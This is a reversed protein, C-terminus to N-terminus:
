VSDVNQVKGGKNRSTVLLFKEKKKDKSANNVLVTLPRSDFVHQKPKDYQSSVLIWFSKFNSM